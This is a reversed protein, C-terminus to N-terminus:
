QRIMASIAQTSWAVDKTDPHPGRFGSDHLATAIERLSRGLRRLRKAEEVVEPYLEKYSKRGECKGDEARRRDRAKRLKSVLNDKEFQSVAGLINRVMVATPTDELFHNPADVPILTIGHKVLMDHGAIQVALDRSFRSANEVLITACHEPFGVGATPRNTRQEELFAFM